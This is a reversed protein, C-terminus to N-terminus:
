EHGTATAGAAPASAGDSDRGLAVLPRPRRRGRGRSCGAGRAAAGTGLGFECLLELWEEGASQGLGQNHLAHGDNADACAAAAARARAGASTEPDNRRWGSRRDARHVAPNAGGVSLRREPGRRAGVAGRLASGGAVPALPVCSYTLDLLPEWGHPGGLLSAQPPDRDLLERAPHLERRRPRTATWCSALPTSSAPRPSRTSARAGLGIMSRSCHKRAGSGVRTMM